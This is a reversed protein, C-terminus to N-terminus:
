TMHGTGAGMKRRPRGIDRRGETKYNMAIFPLRNMPMRSVHNYWKLKNELINEYLEKVKLIDRIESNRKKDLLSCGLTNRLFKMEATQIKNKIKKTNVWTESAYMLTPVAITKYFKLRTEKRTRNRLYKHITGCVNRFKVLKNEVDRDINFSIDCGLYRFNSVQELNYNGIAIKSRVPYKGRFAMVKSKQASMKLGYEELINKLIFISMQLKNETEQIVVKDDAYLISNIYFSGKLQVGRDVKNKWVRYIDDLYINFLTPSISCGQRVGKNTSVIINPKCNGLIISTERYVSKIAEILHKPYGRRELIEWLLKRRVNDFAKELDIFALHIFAFHM